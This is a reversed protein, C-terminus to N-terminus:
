KVAHYRKIPHVLQWAVKAGFADTLSISNADIATVKYGHYNQGVRLWQNGVLASWQGTKHSLVIMKLASSQYSYASETVKKPVVMPDYFPVAYVSSTLIWLILGFSSILNKLM